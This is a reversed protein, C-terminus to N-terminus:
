VKTLNKGMSLKAQAMAKLFETNKTTSWVSMMVTNDHVSFYEFAPGWQEVLATTRYGTRVTRAIAETAQALDGDNLEPLVKLIELRREKIADSSLMSIRKQIPASEDDKYRDQATAKELKSQLLSVNFEGGPTMMAMLTGVEPIKQWTKGIKELRRPSLYGKEKHDHAQHWSTLASGVAKGFVNAFYGPEAATDTELYIDFRDNLSFDLEYNGEYGEAVPNIAAVVLKLNPLKEGNVSLFQILEFIANLTKPEARNLEDIFIVEAEIVGKKRLFELHRNGDADPESPVPAGILDIYPDLTPASLYETTLNLKRAAELLMQTKGTGGPGSIIINLGHDMYEALKAVSVAM